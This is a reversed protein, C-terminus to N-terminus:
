RKPSQKESAGRAVGGSVIFAMTASGDLDLATVRDRPVILLNGAFNYSQPFYVAVEGPMGLFKLDSNTVFGAARVNNDPVLSVLVPRDFGKKDGVFSGILEKLASYLIRVLPLRGFLREVLSLARKTLFNSALFGIATIGALVILFGLGRFTKGQIRIGLLNDITMFAAYIVYITVALPVVFLLGQFFYRVIRKM